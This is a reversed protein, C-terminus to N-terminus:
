ALWEQKCIASTATHIIAHGLVSTEVAKPKQQKGMEQNGDDQSQRAEEPGQEAVSFFWVLGTISVRGGTIGLLIHEFIHQWFKKRTPLHVTRPSKCTKTDENLTAHLLTQAVSPPPTSQHHISRGNELTGFTNKLSWFKCSLGQSEESLNIKAM